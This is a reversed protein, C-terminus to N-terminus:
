VDAFRFSYVDADRLAFRLRVAKGGLASVDARGKWSVTRDLQDGYQLHCDTLGFGGIPRGSADQLEVALTGGASTAFNIELRGGIFALPRTICEGGDLSAHVSVFGDLRLAYRLLSGHGPLRYGESVYFSLEPVTGDYATRTEPMGWAAATTGYFWNGTRQPGPPIFAEPWVRFRQGDRGAMLLTDTLATGLRTPRGGEISRGALERRHEPQPLADTAPTWGRDCYRMPFGLLLHPARAYPQVNNTYYQHHDGSPDDGGDERASGSRAPRYDLWRPESWHVLDLSAATRVDRGDPVCCDGRRHDRWYARYEGRPADWFLVNQSDFNGPLPLPRDHLTRWRLGDPSGLLWLGDSGWRVGGVAKYKEDPRCDPNDDRFPTLNHSLVGRHVINNRADTGFEVLGLERRTWAVGDRSEAYCTFQRKDGDALSEAAAARYYMRYVDGDAFVTAYLPALTEWPRDCVLAVERPQPQHLVLRAGDLREIVADDVFLERRSGIDFTDGSRGGAGASGGAAWATAALLFALLCASGLGALSQLLAM